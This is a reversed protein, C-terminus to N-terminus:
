MGLQNIWACDGIWTSFLDSTSYIMDLAVFISAMKLTIAKKNKQHPSLRAASNYLNYVFIKKQKVPKAICKRHKLCSGHYKYQTIITM